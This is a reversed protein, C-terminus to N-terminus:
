SHPQQVLPLEEIDFRLGSLGTHQLHAHLADLDLEVMGRTHLLFGNHILGALKWGKGEVFNVAEVVVKRELTQLIM